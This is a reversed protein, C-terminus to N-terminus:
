FEDLCYPEGNKHTFRWGDGVREAALDDHPYSGSDGPSRDGIELYAGECDSRNVLRHALGGAKFGACDGARLVAEGADTVLTLEGEVVYVFEDQVTHRHLLASVAGPALHTLNVGFNTLGFLDGLPRKVRGAMQEAFIRPYNSPKTRPAADEARLSIPGESM